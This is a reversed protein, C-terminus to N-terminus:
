YWTVACHWLTEIWRDKNRLEVEASCSHKWEAVLFFRRPRKYRKVLLGSRKILMLMYCLMYGLWTLLAVCSGQHANWARTGSCMIVGPTRRSFLPPPLNWIRHKRIQKARLGYLRASKPLVTKDSHPNLATQLIWALSYSKVPVWVKYDATSDFGNSPSFSVCTSHSITRGGEMTKISNLHYVRTQIWSNKETRVLARPLSHTKEIVM